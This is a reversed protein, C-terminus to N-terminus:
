VENGQLITAGSVPTAIRRRTILLKILGRLSGFGMACHRAAFALPMTFLYEARRERVAVGLSFGISVALYLTIIAAFIWGFASWIPWLLLSGVLSLVFSLPVLHRWSVPLRAFKLAYTIWLGDAFNHRLFAWLDSRPYYESVIQPDLMIQGGARRLRLNLEMDQGRVLGENFLGIRQFVDRRYFGFPVTDVQRRTRTGTKYYSNGTGFPHSMALAIARGIPTDRRPRIRCVGGVNDAGTERLTTLCKSLYHPEYTTHADLRAIIEGRSHRIGMNMAIPTVRGPNDILRINPHRCAYDQVIQRTGDESAGDVVLIELQEEPLSGALISDLCPGIYNRENRCPVILSILPEENM